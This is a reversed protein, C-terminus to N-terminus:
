CLGVLLLLCLLAPTHSIAKPVPHVPLARSRARQMLPDHAECPILAPTLPRCERPINGHILNQYLQFQPSRVLQQEHVRCREVHQAQGAVSLHAFDGQIRGMGVASNMGYPTACPAAPYPTHLMCEPPAVHQRRLSLVM